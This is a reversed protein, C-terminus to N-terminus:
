KIWNLFIIGFSFLGMGAILFGLLATLYRAKIEGLIMIRCGVMFIILITFLQLLIKM